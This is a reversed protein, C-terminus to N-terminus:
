FNGGQCLAVTIRGLYYSRNTLGSGAFGPLADMGPIFSQGDISHYKGRRMM